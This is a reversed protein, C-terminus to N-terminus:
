RSYYIDYEEPDDIIKKAALYEADRTLLTDEFIARDMKFWGHEM